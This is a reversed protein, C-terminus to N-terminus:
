VFLTWPRKMSFLSSTGPHVSQWRDCSTAPGRSPLQCFRVGSSQLLQWAFLVSISFYPMEVATAFVYTASKWPIVADSWPEPM